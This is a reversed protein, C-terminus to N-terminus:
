IAETILVKLLYASPSLHDKVQSPADTAARTITSLSSAVLAIVRIETKSLGEIKRALRAVNSAEPADTQLEQSIYAGIIRLNHEYEGEKAAEMFRYAMPIFEAAREDTLLGINGEKLAEMLIRKPREVFKDIAFSLAPAALAAAFATEPFWYASFAAAVGSTLKAVDAAGAMPAPLNLAMDSGKPLGCKLKPHPALLAGFTTSRVRRALNSQEVSTEICGRIPIYSVSGRARVPVEHAAVSRKIPSDWHQSSKQRARCRNSLLARPM